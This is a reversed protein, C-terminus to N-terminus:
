KKLGSFELVDRVLIDRADEKGFEIGQGEEGNQASAIEEKFYTLPVGQFDIKIYEDTKEILKGEVTKGSKLVITEAFVSSVSLFLVGILVFIM